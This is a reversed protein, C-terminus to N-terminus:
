NELNYEEIKKRLTNRNIGLIDAARLKNGETYRLVLEILPKETESLVAQYLNGRQGSDIYAEVMSHLKAKLVKDLDEPSSKKEFKAFNPLHEPLILDGVGMVLANKIVNELERVNGPWDYEVLIKIVESSMSVNRRNLEPAFKRVFHEALLPIDEKRERLPPIHISVVNLRYFLDERFSGDKIANELKRNTAAIIRVDVKRLVDGGVREIEKEQLVRLLKTQLNPSLEAIEDLFITGGHAREFKGIRTSTADTFSGKVHGFLESELLTAPIAAGNVVVFPANARNSNLHIARAVLEKGTGSEGYILVAVDSATVKGIAKYVAQMSVSKGIINEPDYDSRKEAKLDELEKVMKVADSARDAVLGIQEIDFPKTIYDYAGKKMAEIATQTTGHATLVIIFARPNVEKLEEMLELGNADPMFIDLFILDILETRFFELTEKGNKSSLVRYGRKELARVLVRRISEDDDAVLVKIDSM